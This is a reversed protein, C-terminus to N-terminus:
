KSLKSSASLSRVTIEGSNLVTTTGDQLRIVLGGASDIDIATAYNVVGNQEFSIEKGLIVSRYRYEELWQPEKLHALAKQVANVISAIIENRSVDTLNLSAAQMLDPPFDQPRLNVGIGIVINQIIGLEFDSIAETLIGCIKKDSLYIDNVWKIGLDTSIFKELAQCVAVAVASTILLGDQINLMPRLLLSMYIGKDKPSYFSRGRRGRGATQSQAVILKDEYIGASIERKAQSNTSDITDYVQINLAKWQPSLFQRIQQANLIDGGQDLRYGKKNIATIKHGDSRLQAIAKWIAARSVDLKEALKEGSLFDNKELLAQLVQEKLLM